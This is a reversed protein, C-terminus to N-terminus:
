PPAIKLVSKGTVIYIAGSPGVLVPRLYFVNTVEGTSTQYDAMTPNTGIPAYAGKTDFSFLRSEMNVVVGGKRDRGMGDFNSLKPDAKRMVDMSMVEGFGSGDLKGGLLATGNCGPLYFAFGERTVTLYEAACSITSGGLKTEDYVLTLSTPSSVFLGQRAIFAVTDTDVAQMYAPFTPDLTADTIARVVKVEHPAGSSLLMTAGGGDDFIYLTGKSDTDISINSPDRALVAKLEASTLYSEPKGDVVRYVNAGDTVYVRESEDIAAARTLSTWITPGAWLTLARAFGATDGATDTASDGSPRADIGGFGGDLGDPLRSAHEQKSSCASSVCAVLALSLFCAMRRLGLM